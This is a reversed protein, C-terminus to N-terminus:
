LLGNERLEDLLQQQDAVGVVAHAAAIGSGAVAPVGIGPWTSDGCVLLKPVPTRAGPFDQEGARLEPGYSGRHRRLFREHTLPSGIMEVEIRDRIDPVFREIAKFLPEVRERKLRDYEPTGRKTTEWLEYPETAPLYAHIAHRGIPAASQDLLSPMSVFAASQPHTLKEWEPVVIHHISSLAQESLGDARIGLHLHMFSPTAPTSDDLSGKGRFAARLKEPLLRATNWIAANSIVARRARIRRGGKLEVGDCEGADNLLIREVPTRLRLEGGYKTLGRSLADVVAGSGGEPYDMRAGQKNLDHLMYIMAAAVTGNSPLGSFAFALFDFYNLLWRDTVGAAKLVASWPGSLLYARLGIRPDAMASLYRGATFLAGVDARLALPPVALVARQLPEIFENLREWQAVTEVGNGLEAMTAKFHDIDGSKAYFPGDETYMWWGDYQHWKPSEGVADLVQRLPNYSPQACGSWLSPGSDFTYGEREFTHACGGAKYHAECVITSLHYRACLAGASLGGLGSGVIIVDCEEDFGDFGRLAMRVNQASRASRVIPNAVAGIASVTSVIGLLEVWRWRAEM